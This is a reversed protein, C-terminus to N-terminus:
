ISVQLYQKVKNVMEALTIDSKVFYDVAGLKKAKEIDESQSLNSTVIVPTKIGLKNLHALVSFGDGKPMLLDLIILNFSAKALASIAEEGSFVATTQYGVSNLKLSMVRALPKEDEIILLIKQNNQASM